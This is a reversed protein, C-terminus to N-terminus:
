ALGPEEDVWAWAGGSRRRLVRCALGDDLQATSAVGGGLDGLGQRAGRGREIAGPHGLDEGLGAKRAQRDPRWALAACRKAVVGALCAQELEVLEGGGGLGLHGPQEEGDGLQDGQVQGAQDGGGAVGPGRDDRRDVVYEGQQCELQYAGTPDGVDVVQGSIDAGPGEGPQHGQGLGGRQGGVGVAEVVAGLSSQEGAEALGHEGSVQDSVGTTVQVQVEVGDHVPAVVDRQLLM